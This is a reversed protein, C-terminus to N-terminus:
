GEVLLTKGHISRSNLTYFNKRESLDLRKVPKAPTSVSLTDKALDSNTNDV